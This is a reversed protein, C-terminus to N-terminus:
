IFAIILSIYYNMFTQYITPHLLKKGGTLNYFISTNVKKIM